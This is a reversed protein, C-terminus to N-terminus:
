AHGKHSKRRSYRDVESPDTNFDGVTTSKDNKKLTRHIKAECNSSRSSPAIANLVTINRKDNHLLM